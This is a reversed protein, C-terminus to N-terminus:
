RSMRGTSRAKKACHPVFRMVFEFLCIKLTQITQIHNPDNKMDRLSIIACKRVRDMIMSNLFVTDNNQNVHILYLASRSDQRFSLHCVKFVCECASVQRQNLIKMSIKLLGVSKNSEERYINRIAQAVSPNLETPESM